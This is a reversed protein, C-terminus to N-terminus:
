KDGKDQNSPSIYSPPIKHLDRLDSAYYLFTRQPIQLSRSKVLRRYIDLNTWGSKLLQLIEEEHQFFEAKSHGWQQRKM